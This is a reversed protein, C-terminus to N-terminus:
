WSSVDPRCWQQEEYYFSSDVKNNSCSVKYLFLTQNEFLTEGHLGPWGWVQSGGTEAELTSPNYVYLVVGLDTCGATEQLCYIKFSIGKKMGTLIEAHQYELRIPLSSYLPEPFSKYLLQKM